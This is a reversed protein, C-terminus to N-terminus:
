GAEKSINSSTEGVSLGGIREQKTALVHGVRLSGMSQVM